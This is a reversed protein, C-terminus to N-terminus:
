SFNNQKNKKNNKLVKGIVTSQTQDLGTKLFLFTSDKNFNFMYICFFITVNYMIFHVFNGNCVVRSQMGWATRVTWVRLPSYLALGDTGNMKGHRELFCIYKDM